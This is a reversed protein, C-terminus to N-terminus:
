VDLFDRFRLHLGIGGDLLCAFLTAAFFNAVVRLLKPRCIFAASDEIRTRVAAVLPIRVVSIQGFKISQYRTYPDCQRRRRATSFVRGFGIM